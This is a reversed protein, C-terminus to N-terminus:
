NIEVDKLSRVYVHCNRIIEEHLHESFSDHVGFVKMGAKRAGLMAAPIDEFVAISSPSLELRDAALLYVDPEVKTKGAMDTTVVVDFYQRIQRAELCAELIEESSSTALAIKTGKEKLKILIELAGEKLMVNDRYISKVSNNWQAKIEDITELLNFTEKFYVATEHFSKHAIRRMLEEPELDINRSVLFDEDVKRWVWMSDVLTGDLDFIVGLVDDLM